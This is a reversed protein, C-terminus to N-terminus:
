ASGRGPARGRRGSAPRGSRGRSRGRTTTRCATAPSLHHARATRGRSPQPGPSRHGQAAARACEARPRATSTAPGPGVPRTAASAGLVQRWAPSDRRTSWSTWAGTSTSSGPSRGARQAADQRGSTASLWRLARHTSPRSTRPAAEVHGDGRPRRRWGRGAQAHVAGGQGVLVQADDVAQQHDGRCAGHDVDGTRAGRPPPRGPRRRAATPRPARPRTPAPGRPRLLGARHPAHGLRPRAGRRSPPTGSPSGGACASRPRRAARVDLRLHVEVVLVAVHRPDIQHDLPDQDLVVTALDCRALLREDVFPSPLRAQELAAGHEPPVCRLVHVPPRGGVQARLQPPAHEEPDRGTGEPAPPVRKARRRSREVREVGRAARRDRASGRHSSPGRGEPSRADGRQRGRAAHRRGVLPLDRGPRRPPARPRWPPWPPSRALAPPSHPRCAARAGRAGASRAAAGQDQQAAAAGTGRLGSVVRSTPWRPRPDAAAPGVRRVVVRRRRLGVRLVGGTPPGCQGGCAPAHEAPQAAADVGLRHRVLEGDVGRLVARDPEGVQRAGRRRRRRAPRGRRRRRRSRAPRARGPGASATM